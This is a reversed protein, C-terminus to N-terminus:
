CWKKNSKKDNKSHETKEWNSPSGERVNSERKVSFVKERLASCHNDEISRTWRPTESIHLFLLYDTHQKKTKTIVATDEMGRSWSLLSTQKREIFLSPQVYKHHECVHLSSVFVFAVVFVHLKSRDGHRHWRQFSRTKQHHWSTKTSNLRIGAAPPLKLPSVIPVFVTRRYDGWIDSLFSDACSSGRATLSVPSM